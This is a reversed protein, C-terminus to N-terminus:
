TTYSALFREILLDMQKASFTETYQEARVKSILHNREKFVMELKYAAMKGDGCILVGYTTLMKVKKLTDRSLPINPGMCSNTFKKVCLLIMNAWLQYKKDDLNVTGEVAFSSLKLTGTLIPSDKVNVASTSTGADENAQAEETAIVLSFEKMDNEIYIDGRGSFPCYAQISCM